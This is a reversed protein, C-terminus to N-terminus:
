ICHKLKQMLSINFQYLLWLHGSKKGVFNLKGCNSSIGVKLVEMITGLTHLTLLILTFCLNWIYRDIFSEYNYRYYALNNIDLHLVLKLMFRDNFVKMGTGITHLTILILTFFLNKCTGVMLDKMITGITHLTILILTYCLNKCTSIVLVKMITGITQLTILILNYCLNEFTCTLLFRM